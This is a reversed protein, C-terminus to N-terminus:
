RPIGRRIKERHLGHTPAGYWDALLDWQEDIHLMYSRLVGLLSHVTCDSRPTKPRKCKCESLWDEWGNTWEQLAADTYTAKVFAASEPFARLGLRLISEGYKATDIFPAAQITWVATAVRAEAYTDPLIWLCGYQREFEEIEALLRTYYYLSMRLWHDRTERSLADDPADARFYYLLQEIGELTRSSQLWIRSYTEFRKVWDIQMRSELPARRAQQALRQESVLYAIERRGVYEAMDEVLAGFPSRGDQRPKFMSDPQYGLWEAITGLRGPSGRRGRLPKGQTGPYLGLAARAGAARNPVSKAKPHEELSDAAEELLLVVVGAVVDLSPATREVASADAVVCGLAMLDAQSTVAEILAGRDEALVQIAAAVGAKLQESM